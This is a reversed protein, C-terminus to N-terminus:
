QALRRSAETPLAGSLFSLLVENFREPYELQPVHGCNRMVELRSGVIRRQALRAHALPFLPDSDGWVLLTPEAIKSLRELLLVSEKVGRWSVGMRLMALLAASARPRLRNAQVEAVMDDTFIKPDHFLAGYERRIEWRFRGLFGLLLEGLGPLSAVRLLPNLDRGLGASDVIALCRVREPARIAVDLAVYGGLSHGVLAAQSLGWQDLAGLVLRAGFGADPIMAPVDSRGHAPLDLAYVTM